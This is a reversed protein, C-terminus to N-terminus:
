RSGKHFKHWLAIIAVLGALGVVTSPPGAVKTPPNLREVKQVTTTTRQGWADGGAYVDATHAFGM